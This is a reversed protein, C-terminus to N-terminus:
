MKEVRPASRVFKPNFASVKWYWTNDKDYYVKLTAGNLISELTEIACGNNFWHDFHIIVSYCKKDDSTRREKMEISSIFGYELDRFIRFIHGKRINGFVLPIFLSPNKVYTKMKTDVKQWEENDEVSAFVEEDNDDDNVDDNLTGFTIQHTEDEDGFYPEDSAWSVVTETSTAM